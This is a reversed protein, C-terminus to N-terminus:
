RIPLYYITATEANPTGVKIWAVTFGDAAMAITAYQQKGPAQLLNIASPSYSWVAETPQYLCGNLSGNSLGISVDPYSGAGAALLVVASPRFEIGSVSVNGSDATMDRTFSGVTIGAAWEPATASANMFAKLNAGGNLLDGLGAKHTGDANHGVLLARNLTDGKTPHGAGVMEETYQITQDSM